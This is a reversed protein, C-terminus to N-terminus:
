HIKDSRFIQNIGQDESEIFLQLAQIIEEYRCKEEPKAIFVWAGTDFEVVTFECEILALDDEKNTEDQEDALKEAKKVM